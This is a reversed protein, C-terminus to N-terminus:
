NCEGQTLEKRIVEEFIDYPQAGLILKDGIIFAPVGTIGLKRIEVLHKSMKKQTKDSKLYKKIQNGDLGAKEALDLLVSLNGIDRGEKWYANFVLKHFDDFKGKEKAYESIYLALRSNPLKEAFYLSIGDEAALRQMNMMVRDMYGPPFPLQNIYTGEKPIEPHIEFPRWEIELPYQESLKNIRYMGIYCFP